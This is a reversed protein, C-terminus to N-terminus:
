RWPMLSAQWASLQHKILLVLANLFLTHKRLNLKLLFVLTFDIMSALYSLLYSM